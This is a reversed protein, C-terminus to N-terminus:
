SHEADSGDHELTLTVCHSATVLSATFAKPLLAMVGCTSIYAAFVIVTESHFTRSALIAECWWRCVVEMSGHVSRQNTGHM